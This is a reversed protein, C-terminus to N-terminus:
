ISVAEDDQPIYGPSMEPPVGPQWPAAPPDPRDAAEREGTFRRRQQVFYDVGGTMLIAQDIVRLAAWQDGVTFLAEALTDLVDPNQWGTRDAAREALALAVDAGMETPTSETLMRWALENDRYPTSDWVQLQRLGHNELAVPDRELLPAASIVSWVLAAVVTFAMGRALPGPPRLRLASQLMGRSSLFGALFGGLHAAGAVFPLFFDFGVQLLLAAIFLRRPIRWWAPLQKGGGMEISVLAGALGAAVGSAGLVESYGMMASALMAALGSVGMVVVTRLSGIARETLFGFMLVCLLNLGLHFPFLVMNHLLNSSVVRWYEGLSFLAPAFSGVNSAFPDSWQIWYAALCLAAFCYTALKPRRRMALRDIEAMRSLTTGGDPLSAIRGRLRDVLFDVAAPESFGERRIDVAKKETSVSLGRNSTALHVIEAYRVCTEQGGSRSICFEDRRLTVPTGRLPEDANVNPSEGLRPADLPDASDGKFEGSM